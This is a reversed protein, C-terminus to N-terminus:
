AAVTVTRQSPIAPTRKVIYKMRRMWHPIMRFPAAIRLDDKHVVRSRLKWTSLSALIAEFRTIVEDMTPRSAPDTATMDDVLPNM